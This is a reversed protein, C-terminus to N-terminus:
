QIESLEQYSSPYGNNTRYVAASLLLEAHALVKPGRHRPHDRAIFHAVLEPPDQLTLVETLGLLFAVEELKDALLREQSGSVAAHNQCDNRGGASGGKTTM